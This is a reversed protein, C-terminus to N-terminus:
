SNNYLYFNLSEQEQTYINKTSSQKLPTLNISGWFLWKLLNKQHQLFYDQDFYYLLYVWSICSFPLTGKNWCFDSLWVICFILDLWTCIAPLQIFVLSSESSHLLDVSSVFSSFFCIKGIWGSVRCSRQDVQLSLINNGECFLKSSSFSLTYGKESYSNSPLVDSIVLDFTM